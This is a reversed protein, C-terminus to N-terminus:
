AAESKDFAVDSYGIIEKNESEVIVKKYIKREKLGLIKQLENINEIKKKYSYIVQWSDKNPTLLASELHFAAQKGEMEIIFEKSIETAEKLDIM